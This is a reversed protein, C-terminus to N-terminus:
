VRQAPMSARVWMSFPKRPFYGALVGEDAPKFFPPEYSTPCHDQYTLKM